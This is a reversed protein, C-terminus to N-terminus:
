DSLIHLYLIDKNKGKYLNNFFEGSFIYKICRLFDIDAEKSCCYDIAKHAFFGRM